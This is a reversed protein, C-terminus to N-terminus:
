RRSHKFFEEIEARKEENIRYHTRSNQKTRTILWGNKVLDGIAEKILAVGYRLEREPLWWQTIGNLTDQADPHDALYTLIKRAIESKSLYGGM